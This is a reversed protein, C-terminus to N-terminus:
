EPWGGREANKLLVGKQQVNTMFGEERGLNREVIVEVVIDGVASDVSMANQPLYSRTLLVDRQWAM